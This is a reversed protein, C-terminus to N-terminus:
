LLAQTFSILFPRIIITRDLCIMGRQLDVEFPFWRSRATIEQSWKSHACFLAYEKGSVARDPVEPRIGIESVLERHGWLVAGERLADASEDENLLSISEVFPLLRLAESLMHVDIGQTRLTNQQSQNRGYSQRYPRRIKRRCASLRQRSTREMSKQGAVHTGRDTRLILEEVHEDTREYEPLACSCDINDKGENGFYVLSLQIEKIAPGIKPHKAFDFLKQLSPQTFMFRSIRFHRSIFQHYSRKRLNDCTFRINHLDEKSLYSCIDDILEEPLANLLIVAM